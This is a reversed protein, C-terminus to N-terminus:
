VCSFHSLPRHFARSVDRLFTDRQPGLMENTAQIVVWGLATLANRRERDRSWAARGSHFRFSDVEIILRRDVFALDVRGVFSGDDDLVKQRIPPPYGEERLLRLVKVEM